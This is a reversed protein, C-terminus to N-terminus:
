YLKLKIAIWGLIWLPLWIPIFIITLLFKFGVELIDDRKSLEKLYDEKIKELDTKKVMTDVRKRFM